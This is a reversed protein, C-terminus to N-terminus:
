NNTAPDDGGGFILSAALAGGVVGVGVVAVPSAAAATILFTGAVNGSALVSGFYASLGSLQCACTGANAAQVAIYASSATQIGVGGGACGGGIMTQHNKSLGM